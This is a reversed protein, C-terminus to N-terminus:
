PRVARVTRGDYRTIWYYVDCYYAGFSFGYAEYPHYPSLSSSWYYGDIDAYNLNGQQRGGATPLFVQGGSPGTVFIGNVDNLMTWQRTSNDLLETWQEVTPIHWPEGWNVTAADDEPNLETKGDCFGNDGFKSDDCYKTITNSSGNCWKYNAWDYYDKASTEGWAFYSGYGEPANAGVNCCCWKTGSPLGLDIAHPHNGDPCTLFTPYSDSPLFNISDVKSADFEVVSDALHVVIKQANLTQWAFLMATLLVKIKM